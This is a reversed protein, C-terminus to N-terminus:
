ASPRFRLTLSRSFSQPRDPKPLPSSKLIAREVAEDYPRFGSSKALQVDIVEGTPLQVVQFVAEPNGPVDPPMVINGRIKAEIRSAYDADAKAAAM